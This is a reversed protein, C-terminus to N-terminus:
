FLRKQIPEDTETVNQLVPYHAVLSAPARVRRREIRARIQLANVVAQGRYHNNTIVFTESANESVESISDVWPDLEEASYLYDYRQDRGADENFWQAYNRGHFRFYGVESTTERSPSLSRGIVPQDINCFGVRLRRLLEFFEPQSWSDHRIEVVRPYDRLRELLEELYAENSADHKFSWPFQLLLAGLVGAEQLPSLARVFDLLDSEAPGREHTLGRYLKISFKFRPNHEVRRVWSSTTRVTPIRYFPSNVEVTDFYSALHVLGDIRTGPPYVIGDWDPYSWGAVGTFLTTPTESLRDQPQPEAGM